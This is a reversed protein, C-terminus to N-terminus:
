KNQVWKKGKVAQLLDPNQTSIESSIGSGSKVCNTCNIAVCSNVISFLFLFAFVDFM